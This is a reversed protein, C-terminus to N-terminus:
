TILGTTAKVYQSAAGKETLELVTVNSRVLNIEKEPEVTFLYPVMGIGQQNMTLVMPKTVRVNKEDDSIYRCVLEEGSTLKITITDGKTLAKKVLM